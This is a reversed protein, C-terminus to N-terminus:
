NTVLVRDHICRLAQRSEGVARLAMPTEEMHYAVPAQQKVVQTIAWTYQLIVGLRDPQEAMYYRVYPEGSALARSLIEQYEPWRNTSQQLASMAANMQSLVVCTETDAMAPDISSTPTPSATPSPIRAASGMQVDDAAASGSRGTCAVLASLSVLAILRHV